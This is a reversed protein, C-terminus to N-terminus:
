FFDFLVKLHDSFFYDRNGGHKMTVQDMTEGELLEGNPGFGGGEVETTEDVMIGSDSGMGSENHKNGKFVVADSGPIPEMVGGPLPQVGGMQKMSYGSSLGSQGALDGVNVGMNPLNKRYGKFFEYGAAGTSLLGSGLGLVRNFLPNSFARSLGTKIGQKGVTEVIPQADTMMGGTNYKKSLKQLISNKM